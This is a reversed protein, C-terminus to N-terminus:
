DDAPAARQVRRRHALHRILRFSIPVCLIVIMIRAVHHTSVFAADKHLALAVLSMEALGGPAYALTVEAIPVGSALSLIEALVVTIALLVVTAGLSKLIVSRIKQWPVGSFRCGVSTGIVVQATAVLLAPPKSASIGALHVAASLALPGLLTAAPLRLRAAGIGGVIGCALLLAVDFWGLPAGGIAPLASTSPTYDGFFRFWFPIVLVVLLVRSAHTLAILREDGGYATGFMVMENFGGPSAAFFATVPDYGGIRVFYMTLLGTAIAVYAFLGGLTILWEGVHDFIGPMFSGGLMVGLVVIMFNRFSLPLRVPLGMMSAVTVVCMPGLMWALPFRALAFALGGLTGLALALVLPYAERTLAPLRQIM